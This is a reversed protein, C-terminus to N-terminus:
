PRAARRRRRSTYDDPPPVTFEVDHLGPLVCSNWIVIGAHRTIMPVCAAIRSLADKAYGYLQADFIARLGGACVGKFIGTQVMDKPQSVDCGANM